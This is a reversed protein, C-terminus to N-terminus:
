LTEELAKKAQEIASEVAPLVHEPLISYYNTFESQDLLPNSPTKTM